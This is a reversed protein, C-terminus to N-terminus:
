QVFFSNRKGGAHCREPPEGRRASARPQATVPQAAHLYAPPATDPRTESAEEGSAVMQTLATRTVSVPAGGARRGRESCRMQAFMDRM